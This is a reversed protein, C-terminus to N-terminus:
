LESRELAFPCGARAGHVAKKKENLGGSGPEAQKEHLLCGPFFICLTLRFHKFLVPARVREESEGGKRECALSEIM